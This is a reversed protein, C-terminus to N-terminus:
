RRGLGRLERVRDRLTRMEAATLRPSRAARLVTPDDDMKFVTVVTREPISDCGCLDTPDGLAFVELPVSAPSGAPVVYPISLQCAPVLFATCSRAYFDAVVDPDTLDLGAPGPDDVFLSGPGALFTGQVLVLYTGPGPLTIEGSAVQSYTDTAPSGPDVVVFDSVEYSASGVLGGGPPGVPGQPGAAGQPGTAGPSGAAGPPGPEGQPGPPGEPGSQAL